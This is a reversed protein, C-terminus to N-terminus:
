FVCTSQRSFRYFYINSGPSGFQRSADDPRVVARQVVLRLLPVGGIRGPARVEHAAADRGGESRGVLYLASKIVSVPPVEHTTVYKNKKFIKAFFPSM